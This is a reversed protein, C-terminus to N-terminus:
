RFNGVPLTSPLRDLDKAIPEIGLVAEPVVEPVPRNLLRALNIGIARRVAPDPVEQAVAAYVASIMVQHQELTVYQKTELIRKRESAALKERDKILNILERWAIWDSYGHSLAADLDKLTQKIAAPDNAALAERFAKFKTRAKPWLEGAEGADVRKMVDALRADLVALEAKCSLLEPDNAAQHYREQLRAPLVASYKGTKFHPSADGKPTLGGHFRCVTSGAM